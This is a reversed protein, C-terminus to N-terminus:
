AGAESGGDGARWGRIVDTVQEARIRGSGPDKAATDVDIGRFLPHEAVARYDPRNDGSIGGALLFPRSM